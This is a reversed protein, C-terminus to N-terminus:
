SLGRECIPIVVDHLSSFGPFAHMFQTELFNFFTPASVNHLQPARM